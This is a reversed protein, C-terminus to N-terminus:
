YGRKAREVIQYDGRSDTTEILYFECVTKSELTDLFEFDIKSTIISSLILPKEKESVYVLHTGDDYLDKYYDYILQVRDTDDYSVANNHFRNVPIVILILFISISFFVFGNLNKFSIEDKGKTYNRREDILTVYYFERIM